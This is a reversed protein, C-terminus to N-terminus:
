NKQWTLQRIASFRLWVFLLAMGEVRDGVRDLLEYCLNFRHMLTWSNHTTEAAVIARAIEALGAELRERGTEASSLAVHYNHGQNNDWKNHEPFFLVFELATFGASADLRIVLRRGDNGPVFPTHVANRGAASSGEPWGAQPPLQWDPQQPRRLGWHLVCPPGSAMQFELEIRSANTRQEIRITAGNQTQLTATMAM